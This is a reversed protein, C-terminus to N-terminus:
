WKKNKLVIASKKGMMLSINGEKVIYEEFEGIYGDEYSYMVRAMNHGEAVEEVGAHFLIVHEFVCEDIVLDLDDIQVGIANAQLQVVIGVRRGDANEFGGDANDHERDGIRRGLQHATLADYSFPPGSFIFCDM